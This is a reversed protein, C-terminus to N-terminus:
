VEWLVWRIYPLRPVLNLLRMCLGESELAKCFMVLSQSVFSVHFMKCCFGSSGFELGSLLKRHQELSNVCSLPGSELEIRDGVAISM